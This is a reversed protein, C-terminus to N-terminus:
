ADKGYVYLMSSLTAMPYNIVVERTIYPAVYEETPIAM